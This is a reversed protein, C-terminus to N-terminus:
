DVRAGSSKVVAGWRAAEERMFAAFQEPTSPIPDFGVDTLRKTVEPNTLAAVVDAHLKKLVADPTGNRAVIGFWPSMTLGPLGVEETTPVDPALPSRKTAAVALMKVKGAKAQPLVAGMVEFFLDVQGAVLDQMAPAGGKYPVHVLKAGTQSKLMEGALHGGSGIGQSAYSLKAEATKARALLDAVLNIPSAAPVIMVMPASMLTTIPQFDKIPDYSLATYLTTNVALAGMDGIFLTYGDAPAQKLQAAGIQGGGGPRNDVLVTQGTSEQMKQAIMRGIPDTPGGPPFPVIIRIPKAPFTQAIASGGALAVCALLTSCIAALIKM